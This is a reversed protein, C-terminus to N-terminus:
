PIIECEKHIMTDNRLHYYYTQDSQFTSLCTANNSANNLDIERVGHLLNIEYSM